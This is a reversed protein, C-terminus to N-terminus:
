PIADIVSRLKNIVQDKSMRHKPSQATLYGLACHLAGIMDQIHLATTVDTDSVDDLIQLRANELELDSIKAYAKALSSNGSLYSLRELEDHTYM